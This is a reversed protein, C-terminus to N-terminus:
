IRILDALTEEFIKGNTIGLKKKVIALKFQVTEWPSLELKEIFQQARKLTIKSEGKLVQTIYSHSLHLDRALARRSYKPRKEIKRDIFQKLLEEIPPIRFQEDIVRM